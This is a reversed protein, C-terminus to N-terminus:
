FFGGGIFPAGGSFLVPQTYTITIRVFEWSWIRSTSSNGTYNRLRVRLGSDGTTKLQAVTPFGSNITQTRTYDTNAAAYTGAAESGVATTGSHYLQIGGGPSTPLASVRGVAEVVIQSVIADNPLGSLGFDRAYTSVNESRTTSANSTAYSTDDAALNAVTNVLHAGSVTVYPSAPYAPGISAM